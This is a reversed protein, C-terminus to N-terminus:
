LLNLLDSSSILGIGQKEHTVVVHHIKQKRMIGPTMSVDDYAPVVTVDCSIIRSVPSEDKVRRALDSTTAIGPSEKNPGVIPLSRIRDREMVSRVHGVIQHPTATIVRKAVLDSIEVNM